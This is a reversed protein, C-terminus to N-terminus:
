KEAHKYLVCRYVPENRSLCARERETQIGMPPNPLWETSQLEFEPRAAFIDRMETAVELVDSQLVVRGGTRLHHAISSAFAANVTRRKHHRKKFQPDPHLVSVTELSQRAFPLAALVTDMHVLANAFLFHVNTLGLAAAWENAQGVLPERIELGLFNIHPYRQAMELCFRGKACGVDVHFPLDPRAYFPAVSDAEHEVGLRLADMYKPRFPNVHERVRVQGKGHMLADLESSPTFFTAAHASRKDSVPANEGNGRNGDAATMLIRRRTCRLPVRARAAPASIGHASPVFMEVLFGGVCLRM